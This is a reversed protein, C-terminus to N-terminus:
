EKRYIKPKLLYTVNKEGIEFTLTDLNVGDELGFVEACIDTDIPVLVSCEEPTNNIFLVGSSAKIKFNWSGIFNNNELDKVRIAASIDSEYPYPTANNYSVKVFGEQIQEINPIVQKGGIFLEISDLDIGTELDKIIAFVETEPLNDISNDPPYVTDLFPSKTDGVIDFTYYTSVTRPIINTDQIQIFITVTSSYPFNVPPNYDLQLGGGFPTVIVSDTVDIDNVKFVLTAPNLPSAGFGIIRVLINTDIANKKSYPRPIAFLLFNYQIVNTVDEIPTNQDVPFSGTVLPLQEIVLPSDRKVQEIETIFDRLTEQRVETINEIGTNQVVSTSFISKFQDVFSVSSIKAGQDLNTVGESWKFQEVLMNLRLDTGVDRITIIPQSFNPNTGSNYRTVGEGLVNSTFSTYGAPIFGSPDNDSITVSRGLIASDYQDRIKVKFEGLDSTGFFVSKLRTASISQVKPAIIETDVHFNNNLGVEDDYEHTTVNYIHREKQLKYVLTNDVELGDVKIITSNDNKTNLLLASSQYGANVGFPRYQLLQTGRVFWINGSNCNSATVNRWECSSYSTVVLGNYSNIQILMGGVDDLGNRNNFLWINKRYTVKDTINFQVNIPSNLTVLNGSIATVRREIREGSSATSPGLYVSDGISLFDVNNLQIQTNGISAFATLTTEFRHVCFAEASYRIAGTNILNIENGLGTQKKLLGGDLLWKNIVLGLSGDSGLRSLTWFYYGDYQISLAENQIPFNLPTTSVLTGGPYTKTVLTDSLYDLTYIRGAIPGFCFNGYDININSFAM